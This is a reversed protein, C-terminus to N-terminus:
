RRRRAAVLCSLGLLTAASPAPVVFQFNPGFRGIGATTLEPFAFGMSGATPYRSNLWTIEPATTVNSAGSLYSDGDLSVYLAGAVYQQGAQLAFDSVDVYRYGNLVTGGNPTVTGSGLLTGNMDWIGVMHDAQLGDDDIWVGLDTVIISNNAQFTYGIVDGTSGGYYIDFISGGTHGTIAQASALSAAGLIVAAVALNRM